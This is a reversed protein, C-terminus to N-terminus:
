HVSEGKMAMAVARLKASYSACEKKKALANLKEITHYCAVFM